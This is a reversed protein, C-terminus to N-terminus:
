QAYLLVQGETLSATEWELIPALDARLAALAAKREEPPM